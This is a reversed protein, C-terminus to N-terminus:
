SCNGLNRCYEMTSDIVVGDKDTREEVDIPEEKVSHIKMLEHVQFSNCMYFTLICVKTFNALM